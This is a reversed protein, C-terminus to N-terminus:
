NTFSFNHRARKPRPSDPDVLMESDPSSYNSPPNISQAKLSYDIPVLREIIHERTLDSSNSNDTLESTVDDTEYDVIPEITNLMNNCAIRREYVEDEYKMLEVHVQDDSAFSCTSELRSVINRCDAYSGKYLVKQVSQTSSCLKCCFKPSKKSQTIQFTLCEKRHCRLVVFEEDQEIEM